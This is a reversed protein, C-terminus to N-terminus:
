LHSFTRAHSVSPHEHEHLDISSVFEILCASDRTEHRDRLKVKGIKTFIRYTITLTDVVWGLRGHNKTDAHEPTQTSAVTDDTM